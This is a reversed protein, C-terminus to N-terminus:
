FSLKLALQLSRPGGVQYLQSIGGLQRNLMNTAQGFNAATLNTQITGFNPHNFLNFAEARLQLTLREIPKFERRIGLDVQWAPLGRVQNRGFNGSEGATPISFAARNIKRGGPVNVDDVYFPVGSNVNPRVSIISGDLPNTLTSAVLDVPLPSQAHLSSDISWHALIVRAASSLAPVPIDYTAAAAVVHRVDFNANGRQAVRQTTGTSDDDLSHAWTYSALAQLGRSLRRQFQMQLADYDSTSRNRFLVITTFSPNIKSLSLQDNHLLKRGGAGVYSLTLAQDKGLSQEIAASWQLTYPLKLSPDFVNFNAYPPALGAEVPLLPPAVQNASLPYSVNSLVRNAVFPFGQNFSVGGVDLNADYFIGFAGRVVTERGPKQSAAYAVGIRPAFNKFTTKWASTGLPALQMTALNDIQDVALQEKGSQESPAPNVDWRMGLDLTLRAGLKWTDQIYTSFNVFLPKRVAAAQVVLTGATGALAQSGATFTGSSVYTNLASTPTLRRYDIGFKFQHQGIGYSFNDIFNLQRQSTLNSALILQPSGLATKGAFNLTVGGQSTSSDYQSPILAGRSPPIAGGFNDLGFTSIAGDGSYNARFDNSIRPGLIATAGLTITQTRLDGSQVASLTTGARRSKSESPARNYRAFVILKGNVAHDIRVSAADLSSPDSYGATFEALGNGLDRGNPLPFANLIPQMGATAQQRLAVTPVNTLSFQPLRLRLGEYSFFFFTRDKGNYFHPILVPGGLTGGFDNQREPQRPQGARNAFWDNADFADNRLYDFLTGHFQNTGSRTVISIQGGPQRGYEASYSSTQVKFEQLADVSVLGQTTGFTTLGPLNGSTSPSGISGPAAGFNASVGDVMFSNGSARQGNVSFQGSTNAGFAPVVVVGPTLSILSQFSRGNLPVNEVFKQDVVTGVAASEMDLLPAGGQVTVSESPSGLSMDFNLAIVDQVHLVVKPKVITKFGQKSVEIRYSGPPLNGISFLGLDNTQTSRRVNTNENISEVSADTIVAKTPDLVRGNITATPGQAWGPLTLIGFVVLLIRSRRM